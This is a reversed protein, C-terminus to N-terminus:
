ELIEKVIREYTKNPVMPKDTTHRQNIWEKEMEFYNVESVPKGQLKALETDFFLKWRNYYLTNLLGCWEKHAYDHLNTNPNNDPGWITYQMKTNRYAQQKDTTNQGFNESKKLWYDLRFYPCRSTLDNQMLIMDLFRRSQSEFKAMDKKHIAAIICDYVTDGENALAQRLFDIKDTQYTESNKYKDELSVFLKVGEKFLSTNYNRKRTGWTSVSKISTSPRACFISESAGEQHIDPSSYVTQLFLDWAKEMVSDSKGYRYLQYDKIWRKADAKEAHWGLELM